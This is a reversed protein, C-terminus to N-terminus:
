AAWGELFLKMRIGRSGGRQLGRGFFRFMVYEFEENGTKTGTIKEFSKLDDEKFVSDVRTVSQTITPPIGAYEKGPLVLTIQGTEHDLVKCINIYSGKDSVCDFTYEMKGGHKQVVAELSQALKDDGDRYDLIVDERSKDILGEVHRIRRGAICILPHVNSLQALQIAYSGVASVAGYIILPTPAITPHWPLPLSLHQYLDIAATMAAAPITAAETIPQM